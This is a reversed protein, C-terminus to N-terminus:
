EHSFVGSGRSGRDEYVRWMMQSKIERLESLLVLLNGHHPTPFLLARLERVFKDPDPLGLEEAFRKCGEEGNNARWFAAWRPSDDKTLRPYGGKRM